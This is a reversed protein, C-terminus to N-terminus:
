GDFLGYHRPHRTCAGLAYPTCTETSHDPRNGLARPAFLRSVEHRSQGAQGVLRRALVVMRAGEFEISRSSEGGGREMGCWGM